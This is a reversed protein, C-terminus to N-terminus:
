SDTGELSHAPPRLDLHPVTAEDLVFSIRYRSIGDAPLEVVFPAASGPQLSPEAIETRRSAIMQGTDDFAMAVVALGPAAPADPPNRVSGSIALLTGQTEHELALLEVPARPEEVTREAGDRSIALFAAVLAVVVVAAALGLAALRGGPTSTSEPPPDFLAIDAAPEDDPPLPDAPYPDDPEPLDRHRSDGSTERRLEEALAAVRAESRRREERVLRWTVVGMAIAILLSLITVAGLTFSM